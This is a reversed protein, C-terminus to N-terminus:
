ELIQVGMFSDPAQSNLYSWVLKKDKTIEFMCVAHVDKRNAAYNGVVINGNKRVFISCMYTIPTEPLESASFRWIEKANEDFIVLCDLFSALIKRDPLEWVGYIEKEPVSMQRLLKGSEDYEAAVGKSKHAVLYTGEATKRVWRQNSHSNIKDLFQCDVTKIVKGQADLELIKNQSNWGVVTKGDDLRQASFVSDPRRDEPVFHFVVEGEPTVETVDDGDAFLVNGNKLIQCDGMNGVGEKWTWVIDGQPDFKQVVGSCGALIPAGPSGCFGSPTEDSAFSVGAACFFLIAATLLSIKM